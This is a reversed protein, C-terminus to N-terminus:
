KVSVGNKIRDSLYLIVQDGVNLGEFVESELGNGHGIKISRLIAKGNKVLFVAWELVVSFYYEVLARCRREGSNGLYATSHRRNISTSNSIGGPGLTSLYHKRIM